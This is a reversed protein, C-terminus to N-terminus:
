SKEKGGDLAQRADDVVSFKHWSMLDERDGDTGWVGMSHYQVDLFRRLLIELEAERKRARLVERDLVADAVRRKLANLQALIEERTLERCPGDSM